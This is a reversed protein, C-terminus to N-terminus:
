QKILKKVKIKKQLDFPLSFPKLSLVVTLAFAIAVMLLRMYWSQDFPKWWGYELYALYLFRHLIYVQLTNAGLVTFINRARPAWTMFAACLMLATAYFWVRPLWWLYMPLKSEGFLDLFNVNCTIISNMGFKLKNEAINMILISGLGTLLLLMSILKSKAKFLRKINDLSCYYGLMFFPLHVLMRSMAAFNGIKEDYGIFTGIVFVGILVYKPKFRDLVPLLLYWWILCQLFWLSSRASMVSIAVGNGLVLKEFLGVTIQAFLYFVIYTFPRQVNIGGDPRIYKKAFFGSIFILCPMHLTNITRWLMMYIPSNTKFPSIAHALVVLFILIFKANDFYYMRGKEDEYRSNVTLRNATNEM